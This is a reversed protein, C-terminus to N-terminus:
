AVQRFWDYAVSSLVSNFQDQGIGIQNPTIFGTHAESTINEWNIGDYSTDYFRNTGDDRISYYMPLQGSPFATISSLATPGFLSSNFTSPNTYHLVAISWASNYTPGFYTFSGSGSDRVIIGFNVFNGGPGSYTVKCACRYPTSPVPEVIMTWNDAGGGTASFTVSGKALTLSPSNISTWQPALSVEEFEDDSSTPSTPHTDGNVNVTGANSTIWLIGSVTSSLLQGSTGVSATSDKFTGTISSNVIQVTGTFAPSALPAAGTVLGVSYDGAQAVVAGTRGFVSTVAGGGGANALVFACTAVQTTDTGMSATPATPIGSFDPSDLPALGVVAEAAAGLPDYFASYDEEQAVVDGTRGFVSSVAGGGTSSFGITQDPYVQQIKGGTVVVVTYTGVAVYFDYHGFGDTFIPQTIPLLGAPDSYITALPEPPVFTVDAPQTCVFIQAGAIAQGQVSKVWGDSRFITM